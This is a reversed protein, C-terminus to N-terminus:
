PGALEFAHWVNVAGRERMWDVECLPRLYEFTLEVWHTKVARWDEVSRARLREYINMLVPFLPRLGVDNVSFVHQPLFTEHRTVRLRCEDFLTRWEDLSRAQRAINQSRGRDLNKLWQEDAGALQRVLMGDLACRDPLVTVIRGGPATIRRLEGLLERLNDIWYLNPAWVTQFEADGLGTLPQNPDLEVLRQYTGLRGAKELHSKKWSVGVTFGDTPRQALAVPADLKAGVKNFYDDGLSQWPRQERSWAVEQYMDFDIGFEGGLMVFSSVGEMCGIEISPARLAGLFTRAIFCEHAYWLASEPRLWMPVLLRKLYDARTM